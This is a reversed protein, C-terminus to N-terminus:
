TKKQKMRMKKLNVNYLNYVVICAKYIMMLNNKVESKALISILWKVIIKQFHTDIM